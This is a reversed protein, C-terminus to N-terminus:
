SFQKKCLGVFFPIKLLEQMGSAVERLQLSLACWNPHIASAIGGRGHLLPTEM